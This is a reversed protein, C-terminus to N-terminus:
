KGGQRGCGELRGCAALLGACVPTAGCGVLALASCIQPTCTICTICTICTPMHRFLPVRMDPPNVKPKKTPTEKPQTQEPTGRGRSEPGGAEPVPGCCGRRIRSCATQAGPSYFMISVFSRVWIKCHIFNPHMHANTYYQSYIQCVNYSNVQSRM